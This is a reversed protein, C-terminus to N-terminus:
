NTSYRQNISRKRKTKIVNKSISLIQMNAKPKKELKKEHTERKGKGKCDPLIDWM